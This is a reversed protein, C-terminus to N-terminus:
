VSTKIKAALAESYCICCELNSGAMLEGALYVGGSGQFAELQDYVGLSLLDNDFHPFHQWTKTQFLKIDWCGLRELDEIVLQVQEAKSLSLKRYAYVTVLAEDQINPWRHYWITVHGRCEPKVHEPIYGSLKPIGKLSFVYVSFLERQIKSLVQSLHDEMKLLSPLQGLDGTFILADVELLGTDLLVEVRGSDSHERDTIRIVRQGLRLDSIQDTMRQLLEGNGKVWTHIQSIEIFGMLNELTIAKLVYGASVQHIDGFGFTTYCQAYIKELIDFSHQQCWQSFPMALEAPFNEYGVTKLWDLKDLVMPLRHLQEVFAKRESSLLQSGPMGNPQFHGRALSHNVAKIQYRKMLKTLKHHSPLAMIAGLEYSKGKYYFTECKGGIKSSAEIVCLDSFGNQKLFHALSLGSIGAGVIGIKM